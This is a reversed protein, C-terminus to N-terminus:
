LSNLKEINKILFIQTYHENYRELQKIRRKLDAEHNNFVSGFDKNM